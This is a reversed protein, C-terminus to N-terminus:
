IASNLNKALFGIFKKIAKSRHSQTNKEPLTLEAFTKNLGPLFFLPDYGFGNIGRAKNLIIGETAGSFYYEGDKDKYCITCVFRAQRKESPTNILNELLRSNNRKDDADNGAYRASYIGPEGNLAAVELGSDDAFVPKKLTSYCIRAKIAANEEFSNGSEIIDPITKFESLSKLHVPLASFLPRIEDLKHKNQTAIVLDFM